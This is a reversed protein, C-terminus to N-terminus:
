EGQWHLLSYIAVTTPVRAAITTVCIFCKFEYFLMTEGCFGVIMRSSVSSAVGLFFGHHCLDGAIFVNWGVTLFRKHHCYCVLWNCDCNISTATVELEIWAAHESSFTSGTQVMANSKNTISVDTIIPQLIPQYLVRPSGLPSLISVHPHLSIDICLFTHTSNGHFSGVRSCSLQVSLDPIQIFMLSTLNMEGRNISYLSIMKKCDLWGFIPLRRANWAM